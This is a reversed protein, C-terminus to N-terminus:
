QSLKSCPKTGPKLTTLSSWRWLTVTETHVHQKSFRLVSQLWFPKKKRQQLITAQDVAAPYPLLVHRFVPLRNSFSLISRGLVNILATNGQSVVPEHGRGQLFKLIWLTTFSFNSHAIPPSSLFLKALVPTGERHPVDLM